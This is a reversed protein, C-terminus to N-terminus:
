RLITHELLVSQKPFVQKKLATIAQHVLYQHIHMQVEKAIFGKQVTQVHLSDQWM